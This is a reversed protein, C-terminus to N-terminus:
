GKIVSDDPSVKSPWNLTCKASPSGVSHKGVATNTKVYTKVVTKIKDTNTIDNKILDYTQVYIRFYTLM